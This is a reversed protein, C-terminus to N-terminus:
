RWQSRTFNILFCVVCVCLHSDHDLVQVRTSRAEVLRTARKRVHITVKAKEAGFSVCCVRAIGPM